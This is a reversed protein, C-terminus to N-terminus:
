TSESSGSKQLVQFRAAPRAPLVRHDLVAGGPEYISVALEGSGETSFMAAGGRGARVEGPSIFTRSGVQRVLPEVSKGFILLSAPLIDEEDLLGKDYIMVAVRGEIMEVTRLSSAALCRLDKLRERKRERAIFADIESAGATRCVEAARGWVGEDSADVGVWSRAWELVLRDIAHDDPGLYIVQEAGQEFLLTQAARELALADGNAPGLVGFKM